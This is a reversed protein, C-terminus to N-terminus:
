VLKVNLSNECELIDGKRCKNSRIFALALSHGGNTDPIPSLLEGIKRGEFSLPSVFRSDLHSEIHCVFM